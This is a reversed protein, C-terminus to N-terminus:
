PGGKKRRARPHAGDYVRALHQFDLHTYIQTTGIDAHGLLEQVARLDGSSQLLHSAFSHRLLHPHVPVELGRRRAWAALRRQIGRPGLRGGRRNVFLATEEPPALEGRCALWAKLARRAARGVPLIRTKGGKGSVRLSGDALDLDGLDLAVMEALRLGSSYFLEFLARDRRVLPTDGPLGVLREVQEIDLTQPLRRPRRPLSVGALPDQRALGQRLLHRYLSRVASAARQLSAPSLGQRHREALYARGHRPAAQAWTELGQARCFDGFAELDRRYAALTHPSLRRADRLHALFDELQRRAEPSLRPSM